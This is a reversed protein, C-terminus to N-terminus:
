CGSICGGLFFPDLFNRLIRDLDRVCLGFARAPPPVVDTEQLHVLAPTAGHLIYQHPVANPVIQVEHQRGRSIVQSIIRVEVPAEHHGKRDVLVVNEMM